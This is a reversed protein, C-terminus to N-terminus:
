DGKMRKSIRGFLVATILGLGATLTGLVLFADRWFVIPFLRILTDSYRFIWTDGEFFIRHFIVFLTQFGVAALLLTSVLLFVTLIGGRALSKWFVNWKKERWAWVGGLILLIIVAYLARFAGQLVQKVDEMHRLERDNYLPSGDQFRLDGLVDIEAETVLYKRAGQAYRLREEDSFGYRDPPFYPLHYEFRVFVPTLLFRITGMILILPISLPILVQFIGKLRSKM